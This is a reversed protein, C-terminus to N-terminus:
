STTYTFIQETNNIEMSLDTLEQIERLEDLKISTNSSGPDNELKDFIIKYDNNKKM